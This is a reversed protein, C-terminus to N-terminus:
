KGVRAKWAPYDKELLDAPGTTYWSYGVRREHEIEALKFKIIGDRGCFIPRNSGIEYFRAWLPPASPDPVVVKDFGKPLSADPKMVQKLGTIRAKEFWRIAGEIAEVVEPSPKPIGMLYRVLGVSESGSLSIKEYARAPAPALTTEDHQACWVTRKGDVVVQCRLICDLGKDVATKIRARRADDVLAFEGKGVNIEQLESMVGVMADDNFTIHSYYGKKFPFQPWGGNAYQADLIFDLGKLFSAKYAEQKKAAYVRALYRMQTYTTNNDITSDDRKGKEKLLTAKQSANMPKAMDINKPWGGTDRQYVLLNDAIRVAEDSGYWEPKQQLCQRWTVGSGKPAVAADAAVIPVPTSPLGAALVLFFATLFQKPMHLLFVAFGSHGTLTIARAIRSLM